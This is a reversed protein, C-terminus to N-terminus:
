AIGYRYEAKQGPEELLHRGKQMRKQIEAEVEMRAGGNQGHKIKRIKNKSGMKAERIYKGKGGELELLKETFLM